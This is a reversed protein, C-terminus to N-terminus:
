DACDLTVQFFFPVAISFKVEVFQGIPLDTHCKVSQNIISTPSGIGSHTTGGSSQQDDQTIYLAPSALWWFWTLSCYKKMTETEKKGRPGQGQVISQLEYCLYIMEEGLNM